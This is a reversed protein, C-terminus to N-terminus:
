KEVITLGNAVAREAGDSPRNKVKFAAGERVVLTSSGGGDLNIADKVGLAFFVDSLQAFSMGNSYDAKRGDVVVFYVLKNSTVGVAT